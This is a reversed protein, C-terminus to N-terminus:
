SGGPTRRRQGHRHHDVAADVAASDDVGRCDHGAAAKAHAASKLDLDTWLSSLGAIEESPCRPLPGHDAKSLGVGVYVDVGNVNAAFEGAEVNRFWHSRKDQLTWLLVYQDEPKNQWLLELFAHPTM